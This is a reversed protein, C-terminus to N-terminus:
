VDCVCGRRFVCLVDRGKGDTMIFRRKERRVKRRVALVKKKGEFYAAAREKRKAELEKLTAAHRWGVSSSLAGLTCNKRNHALRLAKLADPVVMRKVKDYPAPIGEFVKLRDLAAAGRPTKHPVM